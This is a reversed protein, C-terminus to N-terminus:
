DESLITFGGHHEFELPGRGTPADLQRGVLREPNGSGIVLRDPHERLFVGPCHELNGPDRRCRPFFNEDVPDVVDTENL